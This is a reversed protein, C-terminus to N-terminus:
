AEKCDSTDKRKVLLHWFYKWHWLIHVISIAAMSIGFEVHWFLLKSFWDFLVLYNIQIVLFLGTLGTNLFTILLITNWFKKHTSKKWVNKKSLIWSILYCLISLGFILFIDYKKIEFNKNKDDNQVQQGKDTGSVNTQEVQNKECEPTNAFPCNHNSVAETSKKNGTNKQTGVNNDSTKNATQPLSDTVNPNKQKQTNEISDKKHLSKKIIADSFATLDCYGDNDSDTFWGCAGKCDYLNRPCHQAEVSTLLTFTLLIITLIRTMICFNFNNQKVFRSDPLIRIFKKFIPAFIRFLRDFYSM